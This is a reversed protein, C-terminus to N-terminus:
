SIDAQKLARELVNHLMTETMRGTQVNYRSCHYSDYLWVDKTLRHRAGHKFPLSSLKFGFARVVEDHAVRGLAFYVKHRPQKVRGEASTDRRSSAELSQNSRWEVSEFLDAEFYPRCRKVELGSPKNNRPLCKVANTIRVQDVANLRQLVKTLMAGSADGVFPVGTRNAGKLGPALGVILLPSSEPGHAPVPRNWYDPYQVRLRKFQARLAPCKQCELLPKITPTAM